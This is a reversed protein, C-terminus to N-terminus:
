ILDGQRGTLSIRPEVSQLSWFEAISKSVESLASSFDLFDFTPRGDDAFGICDDLFVYSKDVFM